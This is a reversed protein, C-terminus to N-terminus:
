KLALRTTALGSPLIASLYGLTRLLGLAAGSQEAPAQTYM